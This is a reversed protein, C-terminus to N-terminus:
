RAGERELLLALARAARRDLRIAAEVLHAGDDDREHIQLLVDDTSPDSFLDVTGLTGSARISVARSWGSPPTEGHATGIANPRSKV